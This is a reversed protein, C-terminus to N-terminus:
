EGGGGGVRWGRILFWRQIPGSIGQRKDMFNGIYRNKEYPAPCKYKSPFGNRPGSSPPAGQFRLKKPGFHGNRQCKLAWFLRSKLAWGNLRGVNHIEGGDLDMRGAGNLCCTYYCNLIQKVKQGLLKEPINYLKLMIQLSDFVTSLLLLAYRPYLTQHVWGLPFLQFVSSLINSLRPIFPPWILAETSATRKLM